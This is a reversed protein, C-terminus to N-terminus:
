KKTKKEREKDNPPVYNDPTWEILSLDEKFDTNMLMDEDESNATSPIPQATAPHSVFSVTKPNSPSTMKVNSLNDEPPNDKDIMWELSPDDMTLIPSFNILFIIIDRNIFLEASNAAGGDFPSLM